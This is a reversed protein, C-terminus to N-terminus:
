LGGEVANSTLFDAFTKILYSTYFQQVKKSGMHQTEIKSVYVNIGQYSFAYYAHLLNTVGWEPVPVAYGTIAISWDSCFLKCCSTAMSVAVKESVCNCMESVIPDVDLHRSKQGINYATIGGQFFYTAEEALSLAAQLNGATVSEAVSLTEDHDVMYKRIIELSKEM